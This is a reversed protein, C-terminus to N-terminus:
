LMKNTSSNILESINELQRTMFKHRIESRLEELASQEKKVRRKRRKRM